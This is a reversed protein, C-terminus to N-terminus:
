QPLLAFTWLSDGAPVAALKESGMSAPYVGGIGSPVTIYQRGNRSWTIPQGVIGSGTQFKWLVKGTRDDLALFEGTMSGTFVLGGATAMVGSMSLLDWPHSWRAKGTLPDIAKLYGEPGSHKMEAPFTIALYPAGKRFGDDDLV